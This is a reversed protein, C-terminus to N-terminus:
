KIRQWVSIPVDGNPRPPVRYSLEEGKLEYRRTQLAGGEWNPYSASDIKFTLTGAAQDLSLSGFHTSSGLVAAKFEADTGAAKDGAAFRPREAKYIQLSYRGERDIMMIGTPAAGYDREQKGDARIVDAAVLTWTGALVAGTSPSAPEAAFAVSSLHCIVVAAAITKLM